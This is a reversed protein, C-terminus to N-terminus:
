LLLAGDLLWDIHILTVSTVPTDGAKAWPLAPSVAQVRTHAHLLHANFWADFGTDRVSPWLFLTKEVPRVHKHARVPVPWWAAPEYSRRPRYVRASSGRWRWRVARRRWSSACCSGASSGWVAPCPASCLFTLCPLFTWSLDAPGRSPWVPQNEQWTHNFHPFFSNIWQFIQYARCM